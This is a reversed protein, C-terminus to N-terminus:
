DEKEIGYKKMKNYLHSRQIELIEATKSVNWDNSKLQKLIFAREAKEKFEQFSNSGDIINDMSIQGPSFLFEIDKKGIDRKDIMIIIREITNRLERVNGSWPLGQLFKVAGDEFKVPSKKHKGTIDNAFHSVLMPIDDSRERLPPINIPIM